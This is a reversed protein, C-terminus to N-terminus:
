LMRFENIAEWWLDGASDKVIRGFHLFELLVSGGNALSDRLHCFELGGAHRIEDIPVLENAPDHRFFFVAVEDNTSNSIIAQALADLLFAKGIGLLVRLSEHRVMGDHLRGHLALLIHFRGKAIREVMGNGVHAFHVGLLDYM